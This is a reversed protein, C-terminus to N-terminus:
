KPDELHNQVFVLGLFPKRTEFNVQANWWLKFFLSSNQQFVEIFNDACDLIPDNILENDNDVTCHCFSLLALFIVFKLMRSKMISISIRISQLNFLSHILLPFLIRNPNPYFRLQKSDELHAILIEMWKFISSIFSNSPHWHSFHSRHLSSLVLIRFYLLSM